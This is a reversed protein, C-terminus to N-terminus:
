GSPSSSNPGPSTSSSGTATTRPKLEDPIFRRIPPTFSVKFLICHPMMNVKSVEARCLPTEQLFTEQFHGPQSQSAHFETSLQRPLFHAVKELQHHPLPLQQHKEGRSHHLVRSLSHNLRPLRHLQFHRRYFDPHIFFTRTRGSERRSYLLFISSYFKVLMQFELSTTIDREGYDTNGGTRAFIGTRLGVEGVSGEEEGTDEDDDYEEDYDEEEEAEETDIESNSDGTGVGEGSDRDFALRIGDNEEEVSSSVPGSAASIPRAAEVKGQPKPLRRVLSRM